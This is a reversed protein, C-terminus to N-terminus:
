SVREEQSPSPLTKLVGADTQSILKLFSVFSM